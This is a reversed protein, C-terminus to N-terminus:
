DQLLLREPPLWLRATTGGGRRSALDLTGGHLRAFERALPLGLGTGGASRAMPAGVQEFPLMVRELDRPAIGIGTDTVSIEIGAVADAAVAVSVLGGAETFKVANAILNLLIQTLRTADARLMVPAAPATVELELGRRRATEAILREATAIVGGLDVPREDLALRGAEITTLDLINNIIELLHQGSSHIDRIYDHYRPHGLPGYLEDQLIETFGLVANLPTRLEHSMNALFFSKTRNAAEAREKTQRLEQEAAKRQTIEEVTGEYYLLTGDGRRVERCCESIWIVTGDRRRIQSEFGSVAGKERMQGVFEVRRQPDVYLQAGIDTLTLRLELPSPYGYIRALAPNASLYRGDATTRFVGWTAHEFMRRHHFAEAGAAHEAVVEDTVDQMAGCLAVPRGQEARAVITRGRLHRLEGDPRLIRFYRPALSHRGSAHRVLMDEELLVRDEPHLADRLEALTPGRERSWGFIRLLEPSCRLCRLRLDYEWSGLAAIAQAQLLHAEGPGIEPELTAVAGGARMM